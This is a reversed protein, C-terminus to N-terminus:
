CSKLINREAFISVIDQLIITYAPRQVERRDVQILVKHKFEQVKIEEVIIKEETLMQFVRLYSLLNMLPKLKM